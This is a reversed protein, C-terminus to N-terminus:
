TIFMLKILTSLKFIIVETPTPNNFRFIPPVDLRLCDKILNKSLCNKQIMDLISNKLDDAQNIMEQLLDFSIKSREVDYQFRQDLSPNEIREFDEVLNEEALGNEILWITPHNPGCPQQLNDRDIVAGFISTTDESENLSKISDNGSRGLDLGNQIESHNLGLVEIAMQVVTNIVRKLQVKENSTLSQKMSRKSKIASLLNNVSQLTEHLKLESYPSASSLNSTILWLSKNDASPAM